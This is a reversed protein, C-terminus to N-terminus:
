QALRVHFAGSGGPTPKSSGQTWAGIYEACASNNGGKLNAYYSENLLFFGAFGVATYSPPGNNIPVVVVRRGNGGGAALYQAYTTSAPDTDTAVREAIATMETQKAGNDMPTNQGITVPATLGSVITQRLAAASGACCYGRINGNSSLNPQTADTGCDTRNGPAGWRLTYQNGVQYGFPDAANDPSGSRTFPSFPFEGGPLTALQEHIGVASAGVTATPSQTLVRIFYMPMTASARVRVYAYNTPPDPPTATWAGTLSTAFETSVSDFAASGFGWRKSNAQVANVARTIGASTSDLQLAAAIAATDTFSQAENKAVYMRGVDVALGIVGLLFTAALTVAVLVFGRRGKQNRTPNM